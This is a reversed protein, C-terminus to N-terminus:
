ANFVVGVWPLYLDGIVIADRTGLNDVTDGTARVTTVWSCMTSMGKYGPTGASYNSRAYVIPPGVDRGTAPHTGWTNNNPVTGEAIYKQMPINTWVNLGAPDQAGMIYYANLSGSESCLSTTKFWNNSVYGAMYFIFPDTDQVPTGVLGDMFLGWTPNGGGNPIGAFWWNYPASSDAVGIMKDLNNKLVQAYTPAADTGTGFLVREDTASPVRTASPTGGIFKQTRSYKIRAYFMSAGGIQICYQRGDPREAVFWVNNGNMITANTILNGSTSFTGGPGTGSAKIVWGAQVWLSMIRFFADGGNPPIAGSSDGFLAM